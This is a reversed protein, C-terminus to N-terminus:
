EREGGKKRAEEEKEQTRVVEIFGGGLRGGVLSDKERRM